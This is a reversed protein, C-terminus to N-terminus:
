PSNSPPRRFRTNALIIQKSLASPPDDRTSFPRLRLKFRIENPELLYQPLVGPGCSGNGLGSQAYDLNLTIDDRRQLEYTHTAQTLDQPTFHHASVNLLPMGVVLLGVGDENTLAVWRVDTKNGNEQPVVYPVYQEDVTGGYVSVKAGLKRDAYTEHPGRGYWAFHEYQGPLCMQLGVRPLPPLNGNPVVHLDLIVDGSGYITYAYNCEFRASDHPMFSQKLERSPIQPVNDTTPASVSHVEVRVVQPALQAVQIEQVQERLRDLGAERWRIEMKQDGWTNADNDTPARWINLVPGQDILEENAYQLSAICGTKKDFVLQLDQGQVAIETQSEEMELTPM